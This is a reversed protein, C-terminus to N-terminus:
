FCEYKTNKKKKTNMKVNNNTWLRRVPAHKNLQIRAVSAMMCWVFSRISMFSFFFFFCTSIKARMCKFINEFIEYSCVKCKFCFCVCFFYTCICTARKRKIKKKKSYRKRNWENMAISPFASFYTKPEFFM